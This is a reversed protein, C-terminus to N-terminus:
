VKLSQMQLVGWITLRLADRILLTPFELIMNKTYTQYSHRTRTHTHTISGLFNRSALSYALSLLQNLAVLSITVQIRAQTVM